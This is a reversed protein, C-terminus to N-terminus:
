QVSRGRVAGPWWGSGVCRGCRRGHPGACTTGHCVAAERENGVLRYGRRGDRGCGCGGPCRPECRWFARCDVVANGAGHRRTRRQGVADGDRRRGEACDMAEALNGLWRLACARASLLYTLVHVQGAGRALRLGRDLHRLAEAWRQHHLEGWGLWIVADLRHMLAEDPLADVMRAAEDAHAAVAALDGTLFAAMVSLGRAAAALPQDGLEVAERVVADVSQRMTTDFTGEMLSAVALELTLTVAEHRDDDSLAALENVLVSRAQTHYGLLRNVMASLAVAPMRVAAPEDRLLPMLDLLVERGEKLQGGLTLAQALAVGLHRRRAGSSADDPLLGLAARLWHAATTPSQRVAQEAAISLEEVADLDGFRAAREVHYARVLLSSGRRALAAVAREHAALRWGVAVSEYVVQRVLPHRYQFRRSDVPRVLDRQSLVNLAELTAAETMNAIEAMVEPEFPDGAVAAAWAATRLARDLVDVEARLAARITSPLADIRLKDGVHMVERASREAMRVLSELYLPNGGSAAYVDKRWVPGRSRGMLLVAEEFELPGLELLRGVGARHVDALAADLNAPLPRPRHALVLVLRARPLRRVLHAWCDLSDADAWHADDLTILLGRGRSATELARRVVRHRRFRDISGEAADAHQGFPLVHELATSDAMAMGALLGRHQGAVLPEVLESLVGYPVDHDFESGRHGLVVLGLSDALEHFRGILRTKGIGPEGVIQVVGADGSKAASLVQRIVAQEAARGVFARVGGDGQPM